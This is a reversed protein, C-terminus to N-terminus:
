VGECPADAHRHTRWLVGASLSLEAGDPRPGSRLVFLSHHPPWARHRRCDPCFLFGRCNAPAKM